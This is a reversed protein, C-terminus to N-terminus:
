VGYRFRFDPGAEILVRELLAILSTGLDEPTDVNAYTRYYRSVDYCLGAAPITFAQDAELCQVVQRLHRELIRPTTSTCPPTM